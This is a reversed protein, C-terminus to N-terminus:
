AVLEFLGPYTKVMGNRDILISSAFDTEVNEYHYCEKSLKTYKQKAPKIEDNLIDIYIVEILQSKDVHLGLGKIPLTNTLPTVAIDIYRFGKFAAVVQGNILWDSGAKKGYMLKREGEIECSIEFDQVNWQDDTSILYNIIYTKNAYNGIVESTIKFGSEATDVKCHEWSKNILGRWLLMKM